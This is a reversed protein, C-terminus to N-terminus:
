LLYLVLCNFMNTKQPLNLDVMRWGLQRHLQKRFLNNSTFFQFLNCFTASGLSGAATQSNAVTTSGTGDNLKYDGILTVTNGTNIMSSSSYYSYAVKLYQATCAIADSGDYDSCVTILSTSDFNWDSGYSVTTIANDTNGDNALVGAAFTNSALDM